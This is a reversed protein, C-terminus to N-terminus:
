SDKSYHGEYRSEYIAQQLVRMGSMFQNRALLIQAKIFYEPGYKKDIEIAKNCADLAEEYRDLRYLNTGKNNWANKDNPDLQISKNFAEVAEAFRSLEDLTCGKNYYALAYDPKLQITKNFTELAEEHRNLKSLAFGKNM